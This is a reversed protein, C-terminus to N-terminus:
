FNKFLAAPANGNEVPGKFPSTSTAKYQDDSAPNGFLVGKYVGNAQVYLKPLRPDALSNYEDIVYQTPRINAHNIVAGGVNRYFNEYLPNIKGNTNLYG